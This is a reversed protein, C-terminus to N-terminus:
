RPADPLPTDDDRERAALLTSCAQAQAGAALADVAEVRRVVRALATLDAGAFAALERLDDATARRPARCLSLRAYGEGSCGLVDPLAEDPVDALAGYRALVSAMFEPRGAARRAAHDLIRADDNM